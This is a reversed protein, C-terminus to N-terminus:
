NLFLYKKYVIMASMSFVRTTDASYSVNIVERGLGALEGCRKNIKHELEHDTEGYVFEVQVIFNM